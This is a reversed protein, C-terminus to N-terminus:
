KEKERCVQMHKVIAMTLAQKARQTFRNDNVVMFKADEPKTHDTWIDFEFLEPPTNDQSPKNPLTRARTQLPGYEEQSFHNLRFQFCIKERGPKTDDLPYVEELKVRLSNNLATSWGQGEHPIVDTWTREALKQGDELVFDKSSFLGALISVLESEKIPDPQKVLIGAFVFHQRLAKRAEKNPFMSATGFTYAHEVSNYVMVRPDLDRDRRFHDPLQIVNPGDKAHLEKMLYPHFLSALHAQENPDLTYMPQKVDFDFGAHDFTVDFLTRVEWQDEARKALPSHNNQKERYVDVNFSLKYGHSSIAIGTGVVVKGGYLESSDYVQQETGLSSIKGFGERNIPFMDRIKRVIGAEDRALIEGPLIGSLVRLDNGWHMNLSGVIDCNSFLGDLDYSEMVTNVSPWPSSYHMRPAVDLHETSRVVDRGVPHAQDTMAFFRKANQTWPGENNLIQHHVMLMANINRQHISEMMKIPALMAEALGPIAQIVMPGGIAGTAAERDKQFAMEAQAVEKIYNRVPQNNM